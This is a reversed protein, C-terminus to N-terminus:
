QTSKIPVREASLMIALPWTLRRVWVPRVCSRVSWSLCYVAFFGKGVRLRGCMVRFLNPADRLQM